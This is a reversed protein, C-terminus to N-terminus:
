KMQQQMTEDLNRTINCDDYPENVRIYTDEMKDKIWDRLIKSKKQQLAWEQITNYDENLNARHPKQNEKLYIIRYAKEGDETTMPMPESIEGEKLNQVAYSVNSELESAKFQKKNTRPNVMIGGSVANPSDSFKRAADAFDIENKRIQKAISDLKNKAKQVDETSPQPTLLIHRVNVLEGRRDILQILHFGDKDRVVESVEGKELNFAVAAFNSNLEGRSHFGLEGGKKASEKDESYLVALTSFSEGEKIRKRMERLRQRTRNLEQPSIPPKKVIEGIVYQTEIKPISDRPLTEYFERVESPTIDVDSTIQQQEKQVLMQEKINKRLEDKIEPVKKNFYEELKKESGMRQIFFRMRQNLNAEVQEDTVELSDVETAYHLMIQQTVQNRLIDCKMNQGVPYNNQMQFERYQTEVESKLIINEGVVAAIGDLEKKQGYSASFFTIILSILILKRM